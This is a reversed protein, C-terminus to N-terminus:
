DPPHCFGAVGGLGAQMWFHLEDIIKSSVQDVSAAKSDFIRTNREKRLMWWTLMTLSNRAKRATGTSGHLSDGFM